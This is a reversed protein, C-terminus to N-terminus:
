TLVSESLAKTGLIHCAMVHVKTSVECWIAATHRSAHHRWWISDNGANNVKQSPFGGTLPPNGESLGTVRLKSTNNSRHRVFFNLLCGLRQHNSVGDHEIYHPELDGKLSWLIMILLFAYINWRFSFYISPGYIDTTEIKTNCLKLLKKLIMYKVPTEAVSSKKQQWIKFSYTLKFSRGWPM